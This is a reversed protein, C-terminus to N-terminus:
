EKDILGRDELAGILEDKSSFTETVGKSAEFEVWAPGGSGPGKRPPQKVDERAPAKTAEVKPADGDWVKPNTIREAVDSPPVEGPRYWSGDIYVHATLKRTM